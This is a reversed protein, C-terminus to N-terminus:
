YNNVFISTNEKRSSTVRRGATRLCREAFAGGQGARPRMDGVVLPPLMSHAIHRTPCAQAALMGMVLLTYHERECINCAKKNRVNKTRNASIMCHLALTIADADIPECDAGADIPKDAAAARAAASARTGASVKSLRTRTFVISIILNAAHDQYARNSPDEDEEDRKKQATRGTRDPM